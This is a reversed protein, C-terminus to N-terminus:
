RSKPPTNGYIEAIMEPPPRLWLNSIDDQIKFSRSWMFGLAVMIVFIVQGIPLYELVILLYFMIYLLISLGGLSFILGLFELIDKKWLHGIICLAAGITLLVAEIISNIVPFNEATKVPHFWAFFAAGALAFYALLVAVPEVRIILFNNAKRLFRRTPTPM